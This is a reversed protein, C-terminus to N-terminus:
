ENLKTLGSIGGWAIIIGLGFLLFNGLYPIPMSPFFIIVGELTIWVASIAMAIGSLIFVWGLAVIMVNRSKEIEFQNESRVSKVLAQAEDWKMGYKECIFVIIDNEKRGKKLGSLIFDNLKSYDM